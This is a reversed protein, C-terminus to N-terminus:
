RSGRGPRPLGYSKVVRGIVSKKPVAGYCRSDISYPRNDGLVFYCGEPVRYPEWVGYARYPDDRRNSVANPEHPVRGLPEREQGNVYVRDDVVQVIEGGEAVIRKSATRYSSYPNKPPVLGIVEGVVPDRWRYTFKDVIAYGHEPLTPVMSAGALAQRMVFFHGIALPMLFRAVCCAGLLLSLASWSARCRRRRPLGAIHVHALVLLPLLAVALPVYRVKGELFSLVLFGLLLGAGALWKRLYLHGVGPWLLTLFVALWPDKAATREKEFDCTNWARTSRFADRAAWVSLVIGGSAGVVLMTWFSIRTSIACAVALVQLVATVVLLCIGRRRMGACLHGLGPYLWSFSAALWPERDPRVNAAVGDQM